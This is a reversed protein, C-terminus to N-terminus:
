GHRIQIAQFTHGAEHKAQDLQSESAGCQTLQPGKHLLQLSGQDRLADRFSDHLHPAACGIRYLHERAGLRTM